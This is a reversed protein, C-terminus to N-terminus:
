AWPQPTRQEPDVSIRIVEWLIVRSVTIATDAGVEQVRCRAGERLALAAKV